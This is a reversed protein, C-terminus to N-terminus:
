SSSIRTGSPRGSCGDGSSPRSWGDHKGKRPENRIITSFLGGSPIQGTGSYEVPSTQDRDLGWQAIDLPHAGWGSIFGIAYDYTHLAGERHVRYHNYPAEPAPGLWLDYDLDEPVPEAVLAADLEGPGIEIILFNDEGSWFKLPSM